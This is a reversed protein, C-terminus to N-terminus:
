VVFFGFVYIFTLIDMVDVTIGLYNKIYIFQGITLFIGPGRLDGFRQKQNKQEHAFIGTNHNDLKGM